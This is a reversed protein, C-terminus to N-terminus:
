TSQQAVRIKDYVMKANPILEFSPSTAPMGPWQMGGFMSAMYNTPGFTITGKKDSKESLSIDSLTRLNLSKVKRSFLGSIIIIRNDTLGYFTKQRQKTDLIFRGFVIYLGVLVFPIGWFMFFFPAGGTIVSTEWFIAFGCWLLSFPIMFVDSARFLLGQSPTGTWLIKEGKSVENRIESEANQFLNLEKLSVSSNAHGTLLHALM